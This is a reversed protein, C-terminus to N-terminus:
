NYTATIAIGTHDGSVGALDVSGAATWTADTHRITHLVRGDTTVFAAQMENNVAAAAVDTVTVGPFVSGLDNFGTWTGNGYRAGHFQKTGGNATVVLQLDGAGTGAVAVDDISTIGAAAAGSEASANGWATWNGDSTRVTHQLVGGRLAVVQLDNGTRAIAVKTVAGGGPQDVKGFPAWTGNAYRVTHYVSGDAVVAVHLDGGISASTVQTVNTLAGAATHVNGFATWTRDASRVSHFLKGDNGVALVHTDGDIGAESISRVGGPVTTEGLVNGFRTWTGNDFRTAHFLGGGSEVLVQSKWSAAPTQPKPAEPYPNAHDSGLGASRGCSPWAGPGQGALVKEATLIQEKKTAQHPYSAYTSGGYARWTSLSFQLGGYYGNGTNIAWNGSSECQAVKDWTAVSAATASTSGAFVIVSSSVAAAATLAALRGFAPM